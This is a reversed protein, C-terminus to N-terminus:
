PATTGQPTRSRVLGDGAEVGLPGVRGDLGPHSQGDGLFADAGLEGEVLGDDRDPAGEVVVDAERSCGPRAGGCGSRPGCPPSAQTISRPEALPVETLPSRLDRAAEQATPSRMSIWTPTRMTSSETSSSAGRMRRPALRRRLGGLRLANGRAALVSISAPRCPGALVREPSACAALALVQVPRRSADRALEDRSTPAGAGGAARDDIRRDREDPALAAEDQQALGRLRRPPARASRRGLAHGHVDRAAKSWESM